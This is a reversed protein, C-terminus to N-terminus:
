SDKKVDKEKGPISSNSEIFTRLMGEEIGLFGFENDLHNKNLDGTSGDTSFNAFVKNADDIDVIYGVPSYYYKQGENYRTLSSLLGKFHRVFLIENTEDVDTRNLYNFDNDISGAQLGRIFM